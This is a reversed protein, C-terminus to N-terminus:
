ASRAGLEQILDLPLFLVLLDSDNRPFSVLGSSDIVLKSLNIGHQRVALPLRDPGSLLLWSEFLDTGAADM